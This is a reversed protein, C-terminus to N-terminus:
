SSPMNQIELMLLTERCTPISGPIFPGINQDFSETPLNQYLPQETKLEQSEQLKQLVACNFLPPTAFIPLLNKKM